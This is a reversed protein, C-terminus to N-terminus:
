NPNPPRLYLTGDPRRGIHGTAHVLYHHHSCLPLLNDLDTPGGKEWPVVHHIDCWDFPRWCSEFACTDHKARLALRQEPSALRRRRGMDLSISRGNLVVPIIDAECALLRAVEPTLLTGDDTACHSDAHLGSVLTDYDMLVAVTPRARRGTAADAGAARRAMEGVADALRQRSTRQQDLAIDHGREARREEDVIRRLVGKIVAGAEPTFRGRMEIMGEPSTWTRFQRRARRQDDAPVGQDHDVRRKWDHLHGRFQDASLSRATEVLEAQEAFVADRRASNAVEALQRAHDFGIGGDALAQRADPLVALQRATDVRARATSRAM